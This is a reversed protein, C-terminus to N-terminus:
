VATKRTQTIYETPSVNYKAKFARAFYNPNSFGVAYAIQSIKMDNKQLLAISKKLKVSRVYEVPTEGTLSLVRNYLTGRSVFMVKSLEEVTLDPDEINEEVYKSLKLLFKEDESEIEIEPTELQIHKSYTSKLLSNLSLLNEIKISLLHFSFPKSLYDSAGSELGKLQDVEESLVTLMIVPIHKTRTDNKIKRVMEVGDVVPMNVDSVILQPHYSLAKQWGQRGDSAEIVKYKSKLSEVLYARLDDDDDVILIIPLEIKPPESKAFDTIPTVEPELAIPPSQVAELSYLPLSIIFASGVGEESEVKITGGHLKVFEQAISLGIGSGQNLIDVNNNIQYFREFIKDTSDKSLGIGTDRVILRIGSTGEQAIQFSVNGGENTFKIANSLLNILIREMKDKDFSTHYHSYVSVFHLHISKRVAIYKFSDVIEQCFSVLDGETANLNLENAEIKRLDLLQNVLNLLRKANRSILNLMELKETSNEQFMLNEIPNLVLTLPTKLEHSLNTLFKVKVKELETKQEADHREKEILHKMELREQELVFERKLKQISSRRIGWVILAIVIAYFLYAYFTMWFPPEVTIEIVKEPTEWSGDESYAKLHFTYSGPDLNTYVATTSTGVQNWEKDFGELKYAYRSEHPVTYNLAMFDLSFNQKYSLVIEKAISIHEQIESNEIPNVQKNNIKLSTIVLPPINKKQLIEAPNFYNFGDLGGFFLQGDATKLGSGINFTSQLVGNYYSFNRFVKKEPDFSSIGKNTSVWIKGKSDELIKYIVDNSLSFSEDFIEFTQSQPKYLCLGGGQAGVWIRGAHDCYISQVKDIPLKSNAHNLVTFRKQQQNFIAIGTGNSAFWLNGSKDEEIATIFGNLPIKQSSKLGFIKEATVISQLIPDFLYVGSGNTGLWVKGQSDTKICNVPLDRTDTPSYPLLYYKSNGTTMDVSYFGRQYTGVLLTKGSVGLAIISATNAKGEKLKYPHIQGTKRNWLNLGTGETGIFIDGTPSEAFAMVSSGTLGNPDFINYHKHNFFTLNSDYKNVGGQHIAVWYIGADDIYIDRVSRGGNNIFSSNPEVPSSKVRIVKGTKQELINLGGEMGVWLQGNKDFVLKHISNNILTSNDNPNSVYHRFTHRKKDLVNIGGQDTGIWLEGQKSETICSINNRSLSEPNNNEHLFRRFVRSNSDYLHLGNATGIWIHHQHDEYICNIVNANLKTYDNPNSKFSVTKQTKPDFLFLGSYTGVWIKGDHDAYLCTIWGYNTFDYNIFSDLNLNYVSLTINTALWLNGTKDKIIDIVPGRGISTSDTEKHRYVKFNQGDFKNLGDETGFWMFGNNDKVIANISNSSLGNKSSFNIFKYEKQQSFCCFHTLLLFLFIISKRM